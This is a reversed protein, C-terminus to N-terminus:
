KKRSLNLLEEINNGKQDIIQDINLKHGSEAVKQRFSPDSFISSMKSKSSRSFENVHKQLNEDTLIAARQIRTAQLFQLSTELSKRSKDLVVNLSLDKGNDFILAILLFVIFIFERLITTKEYRLTQLDDGFIIDFPEFATLSQVSFVFSYSELALMIFTLIIGYLRWKSKLSNSSLAGILILFLSYEFLVSPIIFMIFDTDSTCYECKLFAREGYKSYFSKKEKIKLQESLKHMDVFSQYAPNERFRNSESDNESLAIFEKIEPNQNAWYEVHARYNNRIVYSPSDIRSDIKSFFNEPGFVFITSLKFIIYVIVACNMASYSLRQKKWSLFSFKMSKIEHYLKFAKGVIAPLFLIIGFKLAELIM